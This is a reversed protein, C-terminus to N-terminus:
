ALLRRSTFCRRCLFTNHACPNHKNCVRSDVDEFHDLASHINSLLHHLMFSEDLLLAEEGAVLANQLDGHGALEVAKEAMLEFKSKENVPLTSSNQQEQVVPASAPTSSAVNGGVDVEVEDGGVFLLQLALLAIFSKGLLPM